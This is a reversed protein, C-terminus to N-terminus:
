MPSGLAIPFKFEDFITRGHGNTSTTRTGQRTRVDEARHSLNHEKGGQYFSRARYGAPNSGSCTYDVRDWKYTRYARLM